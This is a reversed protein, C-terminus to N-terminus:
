GSPLAARMRTESTPEELLEKRIASMAPLLDLMADVLAPEYYIARKSAFHEVVRAEEWAPKYVRAHSLADYVDVVSVLRAEIPCEEGRLRDPYGTGDWREHHSRAITAALALEPIGADHLIRAGALTHREMARREDQELPGPKRLIADPVAIKGIDHLVAAEGIAMARAGDIGLARALETAYRRIREVHAGTEGDRQWTAVLLRQCVAQPLQHARQQATRLARRSRASRERTALAGLVQACVEQLGFPKALLGIAGADLASRALASDMRGTAVIVAADPAQRLYSGLWEIGDADPLGVDLVALSIRERAVIASAEAATAAEVCRFGEHELAASM